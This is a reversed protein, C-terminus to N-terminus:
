TRLDSIAAAKGPDPRIGINGKCTFRVETQCLKFKDKNLKLGVNRARQLVATLNRDHDQNAAHNWPRDVVTSLLTM